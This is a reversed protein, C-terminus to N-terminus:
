GNVKKYFENTLFEKKIESIKKRDTFLRYLTVLLGGFDFKKMGAANGTFYSVATYIINSSSAIVNSYSLIKRTRVEYASESGDREKDYLMSHTYSIILNIMISLAAARMTGFMDINFKNSLNLAWESNISALGPLPLGQKTFYDSGFHIAQRALAIPLLIKDAQIISYCDNLMGLTSGDYSGSIRMDSVKYTTVFDTKTLANSIINSTGFIWGFLPDHGLTLVRHTKGGLGTGDPIDTRFDSDVKIADYPVSSCLIEQWSKPVVNEMLKDGETASLRHASSPIVYQRLCQLATAIFLFVVDYKKLHTTQEFDHEIEDIISSVNGMINASRFSDDAVRSLSDNLSVIAKKQRRMVPSLVTSLKANRRSM